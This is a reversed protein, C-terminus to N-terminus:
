RSRAVVLTRDDQQESGSFQRINNLIATLLESAPLYRSARLTELLREDGFQVGENSMAETVGDSFIVLTDGPALTIEEISCKWEQFIGLPTATAGLREVAGNVRLLFPPNHGCNAYRFQRTAEKYCGFFFTAFHAADSSEYFLHNIAQLLEPLDNVGMMYQSRVNAQLNAMLLAASMGKGSIDALALGLRGPGMDLFDYYDGGVSRAQICDGAYELTGLPRVKQPFLQSQVQKAIELERARLYDRERELEIIQDVARKLSLHTEVRALVVPFDFPKTVYDNAGLKLAEVIDETESQATAMIVPLKTAPHTQRIIRLMDLGSMGPMLVDLLILDFSNKGIQELAQAGDEAVAVSYGRRQLRRSLMDRNMENDDVVLLSGRVATM